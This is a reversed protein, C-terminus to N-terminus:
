LSRSWTRAVRPLSSVSRQSPMGSWGRRVGRPAAVYAIARRFGQVMRESDWGAISRRAAAGMRGRLLPDDLVRVLAAALAGSDREPIVFGNVGDVVLGGAAAGVAETAIVPVGQNFAENVVLGWTERGTPMTISPLVAVWAVAYYPVTEDPRVYGAFRVREGIGSTEAARELLPRDSGDGALVLVADERGLSAFGDLLYRLGKIEELRGLHLVVKRDAPVGLRERLARKEGEGVPRAYARNDIAHDAVFIREAAVGEALLYQRVHEGYVVIADAHRYIYRTMPFFARHARTRLRTWVGTWLIFPKRRLRAIIYTAPLAFRGNICKIYADHKGIVLHLPLTPTVKTNGL